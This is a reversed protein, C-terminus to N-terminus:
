CYHAIEKLAARYLQMYEVGVQNASMFVFNLILESDNLSGTDLKFAQQVDLYVLISLMRATVSAAIARENDAGTKIHEMVENLGLAYMRNVASM